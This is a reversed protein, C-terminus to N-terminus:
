GSDILLAHLSLWVTILIHLDFCTEAKHKWLSAMPQKIGFFALWGRLVAGM